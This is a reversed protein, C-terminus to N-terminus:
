ACQDVEGFPSRLDTGPKMKWRRNFVQTEERGMGWAVRAPELNNNARIM